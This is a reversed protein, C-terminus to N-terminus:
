QSQLVPSIVGESLLKNLEAEVKDRIAFPVTRHKVHIPVANEKVHLKAKVSAFKGLAPDSLDAQRALLADLDGHDSLSHASVMQCTDLGFTVMLERGFLPADTEALVFLPAQV